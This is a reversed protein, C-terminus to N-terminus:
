RKTWQNGRRAKHRGYKKREVIRADRTLLGATKLPKRHDANMALLGKSIAHRLSTAQGSPGGGYINATVDFKGTTGTAELPQRIIMQLTQRGFYKEVPKENVVIRGEGPAMQIRAISTKRKGTYIEKKVTKVM